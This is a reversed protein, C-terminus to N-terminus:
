GSIRKWTTSSRRIARRFQRRQFVRLSESVIFRHPEISGPKLCRSGNRLAIEILRLLMRHAYVRIWSGTAYLSVWERHLSFRLSLFYFFSHALSAYAALFDERVRRHVINNGTSLAEQSSLHCAPAAEFVARYNTWKFASRYVIVSYNSYWNLRHRDVM